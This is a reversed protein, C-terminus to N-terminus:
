GTSGSTRDKYINKEPVHPNRRKEVPFTRIIEKNIIPVKEIDELTQLVDPKFHHADYVERYMPIQEYALAILKKCQNLQYQKITELPTYPFTKLQRWATLLEWYNLM